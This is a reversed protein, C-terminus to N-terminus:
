QLIDVQSQYFSILVQGSIQTSGQRDDVLCSWKYDYEESLVPFAKIHSNVTRLSVPFIEDIFYVNHIHTRM